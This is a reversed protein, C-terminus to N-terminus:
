VVFVYVGHEFCLTSMETRDVLLLPITWMDQGSVSVEEVKARLHEVFSVKRCSHPLLVVNNM